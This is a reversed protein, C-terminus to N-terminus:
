IQHYTYYGTTYPVSINFTLLAEFFLWPVPTSRFRRQYCVFCQPKTQPIKHRSTNSACSNNALCKQCTFLEGTALISSRATYTQRICKICRLIHASFALSKTYNTIHLVEVTKPANALNRFAVILKTM